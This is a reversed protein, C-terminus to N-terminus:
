AWYESVQSLPPYARIAPDLQGLLERVQQFDHRMFAVEALYPMVKDAPMGLARARRFAVNARQTDGQMLSVRGLVFHANRNIPLAAVAQIAANGAKDLLQQRAIPEGKELTLLEWYNSAIQLWANSTERSGQDAVQAELQQIQRNLESVKRDLMKYATLRIREDKHRMAQKFTSVALSAQIHGASLVKRYLDDDNNSYM